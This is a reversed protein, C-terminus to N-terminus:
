FHPLVYFRSKKKKKVSCLEWLILVRRLDKGKRIQFWSAYFTIESKKKKTNISWLLHWKARHCRGSYCTFPRCFPSCFLYEKVIVYAFYIMTLVLLLLRMLKNSTSTLMVTSHRRFDFLTPRGLLLSGPIVCGSLFFCPSFSHLCSVVYLVAFAVLAGLKWRFNFLTHLEESTFEVCQWSALQEKTSYNM